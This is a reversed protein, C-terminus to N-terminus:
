RVINLTLHFSCTFSSTREHKKPYSFAPPESFKPLRKVLNITIENAYMNAHSNKIKNLETHVYRPTCMNTPLSVRYLLYIQIYVGM